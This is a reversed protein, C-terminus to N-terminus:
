ISLAIAVSEERNCSYFLFLWGSDALRYAREQSKAADIQKAPLIHACNRHAYAATGV